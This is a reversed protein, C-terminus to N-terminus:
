ENEFRYGFVMVAGSERAAIFGKVTIQFLSGALVGATLDGCRKNNDAFRVRLSSETVVRQGREADNQSGHGGDYDLLEGGIRSDGGCKEASQSNILGVM